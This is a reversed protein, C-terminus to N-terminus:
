KKFTVVSVFIRIDPESRKSTCTMEDSKAHGNKENADKEKADKEKAEEGTSAPRDAPKSKPPSESVLREFRSKENEERDTCTKPSMCTPELFLKKLFACVESMDARVKPDKVFIRDRIFTRFSEPCSDPMKLVKGEVLVKDDSYLCNRAALDMHICSQKHLYEVGHAAGKCMTLRETTNVKESNVRLYINLAGGKVLELLIYLPQEDVAVGYLRVINKHKFNRILRAERMMEKIKAKSMEGTGKTKVQANPPGIVSVTNDGPMVETLVSLIIARKSMMDADLEDGNDSRISEIVKMSVTPIM